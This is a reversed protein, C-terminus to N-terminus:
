RYRGWRDGVLRSPRHQFQYPVPLETGELGLADGQGDVAEAADKGGLSGAFVVGSSAGPEEEAVPGADAFTSLDRRGDAVGQTPVVAPPPM